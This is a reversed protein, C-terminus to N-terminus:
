KGEMFLCWLRLVCYVCTNSPIVRDGSGPFFLDDDDDDDDYYKMSSGVSSVADCAKSIGPRRRLGGRAPARESSGGRLIMRLM